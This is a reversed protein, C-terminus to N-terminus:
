SLWIRPIWPTLALSYTMNTWGTGLENQYLDDCRCVWHMSCHAQINGLYGKQIHFTSLLLLQPWWLSMTVRATKVLASGRSQSSHTEIHGNHEGEVLVHHLSQVIDPGSVLVFASYWAMCSCSAPIVLIINTNCTDNIIKKFLMMLWMSNYHNNKDQLQNSKLGDWTLTPDHSMCTHQALLM